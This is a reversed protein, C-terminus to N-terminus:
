ITPSPQGGYGQRLRAKKGLSSRNALRDNLFANSSCDNANKRVAHIECQVGLENRHEGYKVHMPVRVGPFSLSLCRCTSRAALIRRFASAIAREVM